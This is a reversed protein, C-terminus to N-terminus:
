TAGAWENTEAKGESLADIMRDLARVDWLVCGDIRKSKPVRGASELESFKSPSIGLYTAAVERRVLRPALNPPMDAYKPM